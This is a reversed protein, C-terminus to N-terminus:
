GRASAQREIAEVVHTTVIGAMELMQQEQAIVEAERSSPRSSLEKAHAVQTGFYAAFGASLALWVVDVSVVVQGMAWLGAVSLVPIVFSLVMVVLRKWRPALAEYVPFWEVVFSLIFGVIVNIGGVTGMYGLFEIVSM